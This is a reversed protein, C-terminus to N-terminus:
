HLNRTAFSRRWPEPMSHMGGKSDAYYGAGGPARDVRRNIVNLITSAESRLLPLASEITLFAGTLNIQLVENFLEESTEVISGAM